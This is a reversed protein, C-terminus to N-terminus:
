VEDKTKKLIAVALTIDEQTTIKINNSSGLTIHVPHGINEILQCDDTFEKNQEKALDIASKYLDYSFIQPTYVAVLKDRPVTHSIFSDDVQKITDKVSSGLTTAKHIRADTIANQIDIDSVLPRAGDHIAVYKCQSPSLNYFGNNVSKSRSDGGGVIAVIKKIQFQKAYENITSIEQPKVVVVIQSVDNCREFALISHMVVPIDDIKLMTKNIGKMRSACGAAVIIAGISDNTM